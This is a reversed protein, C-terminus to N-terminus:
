DCVPIRLDKPGMDSLKFEPARREMIEQLIQAIRVKMRVFDDHWCETVWPKYIDAEATGPEVKFYVPSAVRVIEPAEYARYMGGFADVIIMYVDLPMDVAKRISSLIPLSVDSLPNMSNVGAGELFKAGAPNCYGGFVSWKFTTEKPIFGEERMKNLIMLAGEDYVLFGRFGAELNRMLDELWYSLNDSGRLRFGQMKGEETSMEKSGADFAKRHGMTMITEIGEGNAIKAMEKLQDFTLYTSGGVTCIARHIKVKRKKAEDVMAKFTSPYEVGAIEIRYHCGDPFTKESTPLGWGDSGPVGMKEMFSRIEPLKKAQFM